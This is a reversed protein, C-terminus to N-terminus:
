LAGAIIRKIALIDAVTYKDDKNIDAAEPNKCAAVNDTGGAAIVRKLVIIDSVTTKKDGNLDGATEPEAPSVTLKGIYNACLKPDYGEKNAFEVACEDIGSRDPIKLYLQWEGEGCEEPVNVKFDPKATEGSNWFRPDLQTDSIHSESGNSFVIEVKHNKVINSFGTNEIELSIEAEGGAPVSESIYSKRLVYRYGLHAAIFSYANAYDEDTNGKCDDKKWCDHLATNWERNLYSAHTLQMYDIAYDGDANEWFTDSCVAEGGFITYRNHENQFAMEFDIEDEAYTGYDTKTGLYGDNHVGVRSYDEGSLASEATIPLLTDFIMRYYSPRRVSLQLDKDLKKLYEAAVLKLYVPDLVYNDDYPLFKSTHMEGWPGFLGFQVVAIATKEKNFAECLKGIHGYIVDVSEPELNQNGGSNGDDYLARVIAKLENERIIQLIYGINFIDQQTIEGEADLDICLYVLSTTDKSKIGEIYSKYVCSEDYTATQGAHYVPLTSYFGRDQNVVDATTEEATIKQEILRDQAAAQPLAYATLMTAALAACMVAKITKKM